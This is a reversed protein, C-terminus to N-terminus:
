QRPTKIDDVLEDFRHKVNFSCEWIDKFRRPALLRVKEYRDHGLKIESAHQALDSLMVSENIGLADRIDAIVALLNAQNTMRSADEHSIGLTDRLDSQLALVKEQESM